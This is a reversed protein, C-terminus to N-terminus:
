LSPASSQLSCTMHAPRHVRICHLSRQHSAQAHALRRFILITAEPLQSDMEHIEEDGGQMNAQLCRVYLPVYRRRAQVVQMSLRRVCTARSVAQSATAALQQVFSGLPQVAHLTATWRPLTAKSQRATAMPWLCQATTCRTTHYHCRPSRAGLYSSRSHRRCLLVFLM